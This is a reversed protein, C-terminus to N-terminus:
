SRKIDQYIKEAYKKRTEVKRAKDWKNYNGDFCYLHNIQYLPCHICDKEGKKKKQTDYECFGCSSMCLFVEKHNSSLWRFLEVLNCGTKRAYDWKILSYERAKKKTLRM